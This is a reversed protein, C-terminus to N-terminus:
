KKQITFHLREDMEIHNVSPSIDFIELSKWPMENSTKSNWVERFTATSYSSESYKRAFVRAIKQKTIELQSLENLQNFLNQHRQNSGDNEHNNESGTSSIIGYFFTRIYRSPYKIWNYGRPNEDHYEVIVDSGGPIKSLLNDRYEIPIWFVRDALHEPLGLYVHKIRNEM